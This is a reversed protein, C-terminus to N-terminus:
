QLFLKSQRKNENGGSAIGVVWFVSAMGGENELLLAFRVLSFVGLLMAEKLCAESFWEGINNESLLFTNNLTHLTELCHGTVINQYGLIMVCCSVHIQLWVSVGEWYDVM